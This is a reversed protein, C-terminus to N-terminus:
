RNSDIFSDLLVALTIFSTAIGAVEGASLRRKERKQPIFIEAGAEIDPYNKFWLFSATKEATGNAYVVYSKTKRARESFGGAQAIYDTFSYTNDHRTTIPYLLEGRLRVTQLQRPISLIDGERLIIDFKSEPNNIIRDLDIGIFEHTKFDLNTDLARRSLEQLRQRKIKKPDDSPENPLDVRDGPLQDIQNNTDMEDNVLEEEEDHVLEEEAYVYFETRRILTAGKSYSYKTLGGARQLIDSIRENKKALTYKGPYIVEGEVEVLLQQEYAPNKRIIVLDFPQLQFTSAEQSLGLDHSISFNYIEATSSLNDISSSKIRRAVEVSSKSASEKLGDAVLILDEVTMGTIYDYEGPFRVEGDIQVVYEERLDFISKIHVIDENKLKVDPVSGNLIDKVEFEVSSLTYDDETRIIVGRGTFAEGTLGDAQKILESVTLDETLEFDGPRHVAGQIQVRNSYRESVSEVLIQDGGNLPFSDFEQKLVTVVAKDRGTNRKITLFNSYANETFGGAFAILDGLNEDEKTEYIAPQKVEGGLSIRNLYPKVIIVDQDQLRLSQSHDGRLYQYTDLTAVSIGDRILDVERLSGSETPGGAYYLANFLTSLSSLTFTAPNNVQGVVHVKISRLNGLTVQAYTNASRGNRDVLGAYIKTLRGIIRKSSEEITLGNVNVPGLGPIFIFGEPSVELQYTQESSGWIDIIIDDSPGVIYDKPIPLNASPEFTLKWNDFLEIGFIKLEKSGATDLFLLQDSSNNLKRDKFFEDIEWEENRERKVSNGKSEPSLASIRRRLKAIESAPMGRARATQEFQQQSMGTSQMRTIFSQMQADTWEDVRVQGLNELSINDQSYGFNNISNLVTLTVLLIIATSSKQLSCIKMFSNQYGLQKCFVYLTLIIKSGFKM